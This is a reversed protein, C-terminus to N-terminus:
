IKMHFLIFSLKVGTNLCLSKSEYVLIVNFVLFPNVCIVLYDM